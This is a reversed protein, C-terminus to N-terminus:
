GGSGDARRGTVEGAPSVGSVAALGQYAAARLWARRTEGPALAAATGNDIAALLGASPYSSWPELALTYVQGYWPYGSSQNFQRWVWLYPFADLSWALAFGTLTRQNTLAYWGQPLNVVYGLDEHGSGPPDPRSFDVSAGGDEAM